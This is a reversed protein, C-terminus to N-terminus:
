AVRRRLRGAAVWILLAVPAPAILYGATAIFGALVSNAATGVVKPHGPAGASEV